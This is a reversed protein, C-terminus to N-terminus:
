TSKVMESFSKTNNENCSRQTPDRHNNKADVTVNKIELFSLVFNMQIRLEQVKRRLEANELQIARVTPDAHHAPMKPDNLDDVHFHQRDLNPSLFAVVQLPLPSASSDKM